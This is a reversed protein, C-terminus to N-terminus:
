LVCSGLLSFYCWLSLLALVVCFLYFLYKGFYPQWYYFLIGLKLLVLYIGRLTLHFTATAM